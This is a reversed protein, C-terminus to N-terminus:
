SFTTFFGCGRTTPSLANQESKTESVPPLNSGISERMRSSSSSVSSSPSNINYNANVGITTSIFIKKDKRTRPMPPILLISEPNNDIGFSGTCISHSSILSSTSADDGDCGKNNVQLKEECSKTMKRSADTPTIEEKTFESIALLIYITKYRSGNSNIEVKYKGPGKLTLGYSEELDCETPLENEDDESRGKHQINIGCEPIQSLKRWSRAGSGHQHNNSTASTSGPSSEEKITLIGGDISRTFTSLKIVSGEEVSIYESSKGRLSVLITDKRKVKLAFSSASLLSSSNSKSDLTSRSGSLSKSKVESAVIDQESQDMMEKHLIDDIRLGEGGYDAVLEERSVIKTLNKLIADKNTGVMSIKNATRADIYTRILKWTFTFFSPANIISMHNLTEPFCLSDIASQIKILNLPRKSLQATTLHKLDLICVCEYRKFTSSSSEYQEKLKNAYAHMMANWHYNIIGKVSTLCEISNIDMLAPKSYFVPCGNKAHGYYVQPYQKIYFAIDCGLADKTSPNPYFNNSRALSSCTTAEEVMQITDKLNYKRARLWRCMAYVEHENASQFSFLTDRFEQNRSFVEKRFQEFISYEDETLYGPYGQNELAVEQRKKSNTSTSSSTSTHSQLMIEDKSMKQSESCINNNNSNNSNNSNSENNSKNNNNSSRNEISMKSQNPIVTQEYDNQLHPAM